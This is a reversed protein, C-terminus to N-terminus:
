GYIRLCPMSSNGKICDGQRILTIQCRKMGMVLLKLSLRALLPDFLSAYKFRTAEIVFFANESNSSLNIASKIIELKNTDEKKLLQNV